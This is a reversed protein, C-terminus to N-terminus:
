KLTLWAALAALKEDARWPPDLSRGLDSLAQKILAPSLKLESSAIKELERDSFTRTSLGHAEAALELVRRFLIGEAAHGRIHYNGIRGLDQDKSGVTAVGKVTLGEAQLSKIMRALARRAVVEIPRTFNTVARQSQEWPLDMVEHYPQFTEPIKPDTLKIETKSLVLPTSRSGGLVVAIARGTKARLGIIVLNSKM